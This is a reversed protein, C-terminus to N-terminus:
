TSFRGGVFVFMLVHSQDATQMARGNEPQTTVHLSQSHIHDDAMLFSAVFVNWVCREPASVLPDPPSSFLTSLACVQWVQEDPLFAVRRGVSGHFTLSYCQSRTALDFVQVCKGQLHVLGKGQRFFQVHNTARNDNSIRLWM